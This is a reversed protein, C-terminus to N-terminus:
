HRSSPSHPSCGHPLQSVCEQIAASHFPHVHSESLNRMRSYAHRPTTQHRPIPKVFTKCAHIDNYYYIHWIRDQIHWTLQLTSVAPLVSSLEATHFWNMEILDCDPSKVTPPSHTFILKGKKSNLQYMLCKTQRELPLPHEAYYM